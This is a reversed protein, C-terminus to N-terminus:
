DPPRRHISVHYDSTEEAFPDGSWTALRLELELGAAACWQDYQEISPWRRNRSYGVILRGGPAVHAASCRVAAERDEPRVFGIVNGAAVVIDFTRGLDLEALDALHWPIEPAKARARDLLDADLDTGECRIGRRHLEIAVRGTGCGADLVTRPAYGMLLDVEGHPNEGAAAMQEWRRDYEDLDVRERWRAWDDAGRTPDTGTM